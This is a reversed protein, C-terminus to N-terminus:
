RDLSLEIYPTTCLELKTPLYLSTPAVSSYKNHMQTNTLIDTIAHLFIQVM